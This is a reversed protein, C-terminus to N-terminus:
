KIECGGAPLSRIIEDLDGGLKHKIKKGIESSKKDGQIVQIYEKCHKKIASIPGAMIKDEYVGIALNITPVLYNTKGRIMFAGKPLFEGQNAEKTVQDSTVHFVELSSMGKKWAKSFNATFDSAEQLTTKPIEKGESKIVVFPSGAMDTHFVADGKEAHKKIIIENTTADRGGIVLFDDSSIFWRYKEYWERKKLKSIRPAEKIIEKDKVKKLKAKSNELAKKAGKLKKKAKKAKEFYETANQDVTKRFDLTLKM